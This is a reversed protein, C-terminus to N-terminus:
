ALGFEKYLQKRAREVVDDHADQHEGFLARDLQPISWRQPRSNLTIPGPWIGQRVERRFQKTSVCGVYKAAIAVPIAQPKYFDYETEIAM